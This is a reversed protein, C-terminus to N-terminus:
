GPVGTDLPGLLVRLLDALQDREDGNLGSLLEQEQELLDALAADAVHRGRDTLEVLM